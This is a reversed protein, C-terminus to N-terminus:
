QFVRVYDVAMFEPFTTNETPSGPWTGGVAINFIFFFPDNFPYPQGNVSSPNISHYLQDDMYWEISNEEWIVSFVHFEDAYTEPFDLSFGTGSFQHQSFDEGWHATGHIRRPNLGVLEMIDIEGCAPWGVTPFDAGLMWLAPWIGEDIPLLARIDIRGYQFEQLGCSKMRASTYQGQAIEKAVILLNGNEVYSNESSSTYNQLEQNGWGHDGMEHIWNLPNIETGNFEDAWVLTMGPYNDPTTYGENTIQITNDDNKITGTAEQINDKLFSNIPNSLVVKFQEDAELFGDVVINIPIIKSTEGPSFTLTGSLAEYDEGANATLDETEFQVTVTMDSSQNLRVEFDFSSNDANEFATRDSAFKIEPFVPNEDDDKCQGFGIILLGGLFIGLLNKM